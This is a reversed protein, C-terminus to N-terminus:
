LRVGWAIAAAHRSTYSINYLLVTLAILVASNIVIFRISSNKRYYFADLVTKAMM